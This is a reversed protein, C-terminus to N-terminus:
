AAVGTDFAFVATPEPTRSKLRFYETPSDAQRPLAPSACRPVRKVLRLDQLRRHMAEQSVDFERALDALGRVGKAWRDAVLHRPMLVCAAFYDAMLQWRRESDFFPTSPYLFGRFPYDLVHKFEHMLSFRQRVGPETANLVILWRPKFWRFYGSEPHAPHLVVRVYPL